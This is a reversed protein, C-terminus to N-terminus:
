ARPWNLVHRVSKGLLWQKETDSLLDSYRLYHLSQAWTQDSRSETYDSAWMVREAGFADIVRRLHRFVDAYPYSEASLRAPAHCWKLALNSHGALQIVQDLEAVREPLTPTVLRALEPAVEGQVPPAVGVGCHDLIVWLRPFKRLYPVLLDVNKHLAIFIPVSYQEAVAFLPEFGGERFTDIEGKEPRPIVRMCLGGEQTRVDAVLRELEPDRADIRVLYGFRTPFRAVAHRSFAFDSRSAGNPLLQSRVPLMHSDYGWSEALLVTDIGVADMAAIACDLVGDPDATQWGPVMRNVHVQADVIEMARTYRPVVKLQEHDERWPSHSIGM